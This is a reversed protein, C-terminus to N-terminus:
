QAEDKDIDKVMLLVVDDGSHWSESVISMIIIQRKQKTSHKVGLV